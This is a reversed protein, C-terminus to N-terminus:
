AQPLQGALQAHVKHNKQGESLCAFDRPSCRDGGNGNEVPACFSLKFDLCVGIDLKAM